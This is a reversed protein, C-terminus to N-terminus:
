NYNGKLLKANKALTFKRVGLYFIIPLISLISVAVIMPTEAERYIRKCRFENSWRARTANM